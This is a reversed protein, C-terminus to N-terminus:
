FSTKWILFIDVSVKQLWHCCIKVVDDVAWELTHNKEKRYTSSAEIKISGSSFSIRAEVYYKERYIAYEPFVLVFGNM